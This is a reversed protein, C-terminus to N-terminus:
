NVNKCFVFPLGPNRYPGIICFLESVFMYFRISVIIKSWVNVKFCFRTEPVTKM